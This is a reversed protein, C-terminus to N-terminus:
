RQMIDLELFIQKDEAHSGRVNHQPDLPKLCQPWHSRIVLWQGHFKQDPILLDLQLTAGM